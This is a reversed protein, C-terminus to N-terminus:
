AEAAAPVSETAALEAIGRSLQEGSVTGLRSAEIEVLTHPGSRHVAALLDRGHLRFGRLAVGRHGVPPEADPGAEGGDDDFPLLSRWDRGFLARAPEGLWEQVNASAALVAGDADAVL